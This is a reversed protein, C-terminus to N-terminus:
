KNEKIILEITKDLDFSIKKALEPNELETQIIVDNKRKYEPHICVYIKKWPTYQALGLHKGFEFLTIPALTEFRFHFLLITAQNLYFHEWTIQTREESDSWIYDNRRPNAVNFYPILKGAVDKQWDFAGSISGGLFILKESFKLEGPIHYKPAELYLNKM